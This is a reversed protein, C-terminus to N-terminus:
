CIPSRWVKALHALSPNRVSLLCSFTKSPNFFVQNARLQLTNFPTVAKNLSLCTELEKTCAQQHSRAHMLWNPTRHGWGKAHSKAKRDILIIQSNPKTALFHRDLSLSLPFSHPLSIAIWFFIADKLHRQPPFVVNKSKKTLKVESICNGSLMSFRAINDNGKNKWEKLIGFLVTGKYSLHIWYFSQTNTNHKYQAQTNPTDNSKYTHIFPNPSIKKTQILPYFMNCLDQM